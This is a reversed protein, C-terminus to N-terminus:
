GLLGVDLKQVRPTATPTMLIRCDLAGRPGRLTWRARAPTEHAVEGVVDVGGIREVLEAIAAARRSLPVDQAVCPDLLEADPLAGAAVAARVREAADVTEPWPAFAPPAPAAPAADSSGFARAFVAQVLPTLSTYTANEFVVAGVGSGQEWEMRTTFGPYGGSHGVFLRGAGDSRVVLGLGYAQWPGDGSPDGAVMTHPHRMREALRAPLVAGADIAGSLMGCWRTLDTLTSFLGGIPSFAGPASFPLPEWGDPAPRYGTIANGISADFGTGTLGLPALLRTEVFRRYPMRARLGIIRGVIAYGLNSYEYREGAPWVARVGEGLLEAFAADTLPEQRDGWPDDTPFGSRMALADRVTPAAGGPGLVRLPVDLADALPEDLDLAGEEALLLAAAATFSKTCSAIRFAAHAPDVPLVAEAESHM